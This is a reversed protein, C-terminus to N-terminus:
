RTPYRGGADVIAISPNFSVFVPLLPATALRGLRVAQLRRGRGGARPSEKRNKKQGDQQRMGPCGM